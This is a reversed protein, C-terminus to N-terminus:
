KDLISFIKAGDFNRIVRKVDETAFLEQISNKNIWSYDVCMRLTGDGNVVILASSAWPSDSEEIQDADLLLKCQQRM